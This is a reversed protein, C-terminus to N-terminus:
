AELYVDVAAITAGPALQAKLTLSGSILDCPGAAAPGHSKILPERPM